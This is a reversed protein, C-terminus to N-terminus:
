QLYKYKINTDFKNDFFMNGIHRDYNNLIHDLLLIREFEHNHAISWIIKPVAKSVFESYFCAGCNKDDLFDIDSNNFIVSYPLNCIGFNPVTVGIARAISNGIWENILTMTGCSNNPYKVVANVGNSLRCNIPATAGADMAYGIEVVELM